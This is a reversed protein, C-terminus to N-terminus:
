PRRRPMAHHVALIAAAIGPGDTVPIPRPYTPIGSLMLERTAANARIQAGAWPRDCLPVSVSYRGPYDKDPDIRPLEVVQYGAVSLIGPLVSAILDAVHDQSHTVHRPKVEFKELVTASLLNPIGCIAQNIAKRIRLDMQESSGM